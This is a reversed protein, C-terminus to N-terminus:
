KGCAERILTLITYLEISAEVPLVWHMNDEKGSSSVNFLSYFQTNYDPIKLLTKELNEKEKYNAAINLKEKENRATYVPNNKRSLKPDLLTAIKLKEPLKSIEDRIAANKLQAEQIKLFDWKNEYHIIIEAQTKVGNEKIRKIRIEENEFPANIRNENLVFVSDKRYIIFNGNAETFAWGSPLNNLILNINGDAKYFEKSIEKESAQGFLFNPNICSVLLISIVIILPRM